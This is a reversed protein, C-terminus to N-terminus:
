VTPDPDVVTLRLRGALEAALAPNEPFPSKGGGVDLWGGSDPASALVAAEYHAAPLHYGARHRSRITRGADAPDGYRLRAISALLDTEPRAAAPMTLPKPPSLDTDGAAAPPDDTPS